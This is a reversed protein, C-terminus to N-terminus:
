LSYVDFRNTKGKLQSTPKEGSLFEANIPRKVIAKKTRKAKIINELLEANSCEENFAIKHLIQMAQKVKASKRRTPFMPDVYVCDFLIKSTQLYINSDINILDIRAAIESLQKSEKARNLADALLLYIYPDKELSTLSHGRAALIFSDMGLGATVDLINLKNKSRGEVAQIVNCKKTKPNIRNLLDPSSFDIHLLQNDLNLKLIKDEIYLYKSNDLGITNEFSDDLQDIYKSTISDKISLKNM